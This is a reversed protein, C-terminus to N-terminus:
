RQGEDGVSGEPWFANDGGLTFDFEIERIVNGANLLAVAKPGSRRLALAKDRIRADGKVVEWDRDNDLIDPTWGDLTTDDSATFSDIIAFPSIDRVFVDARCICRGHVSQRIIVAAM